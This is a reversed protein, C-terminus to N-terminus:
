SYLIKLFIKAFPSFDLKTTYAIVNKHIGGTLIYIYNTGHGHTMNYYFFIRNVSEIKFLELCFVKKAYFFHKKM